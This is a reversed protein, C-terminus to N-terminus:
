CHNGLLCFFCLAGPVTAIAATVAIGNQVHSQLKPLEQLGQEEHLNSHVPM